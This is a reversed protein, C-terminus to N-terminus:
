RTVEVFEIAKWKALDTTIQEYDELEFGYKIGLWTIFLEVGHVMLDKKFPDLSM